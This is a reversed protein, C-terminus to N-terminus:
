SSAGAPAILKLLAHELDPQDVRLSEPVQDRDVLAAGLYAIMSSVGRVEIESGATTVEQVGPISAMWDASGVPIFRVRVGPSHREILAAPTGRDVVAGNVIVVVRDCLAEAEEMFHTVLVVTTGQDRVNEILEWVARRANPDLGQTLEDLFVVEPENLLALALFLRQRQGGSLDGFASRALGTLEWDDMARDAQTADDAFLRIAERVRLRDPLSSDQLQSGVRGRLQTRDGIPDHGLVRVTGSDPRRLGQACEVATTKGAGNTGLVGFIEGRRVSMSLRNVAVHDGYFKTLGEIEVVHDPPSSDPPSPM